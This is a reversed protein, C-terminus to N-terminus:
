GTANAPNTTSIMVMARVGHARCAEAVHRTGLVNTLIGESPNAEVIPVHKLAAAHFVLEPRELAMAENVRRRDRVDGVLATRPLAPFREAIERDITYLAYEGNDFLALREPAFSAIQRALEAGITGGAGTVLVRRGAILARMAARDLVTQPRGLLDELAVPEIQRTADGLTQQFDTLRPLRALSIGLEDALDLLKLM